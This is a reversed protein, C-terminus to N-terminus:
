KLSEIVELIQKEVAKRNNDWESEKIRILKIGKEKALKNKIEDKQKAEEKSHWYTGDFEIGLNLAPLFIDLERQHGKKGEEFLATRNNELIEGDYISKVFEAVDKEKLSYPKRVCEKCYINQPNTEKTEWTKGCIDCKLKIFQRDPNSYEDITSLVTIRKKKLKEVFISYHNFRKTRIGKERVTKTKLIGAIKEKFGEIGFINEVGYHSIFTEKAKQRCEPSKSPNDVGFRSIYTSRAKNRCEKVLFPTEAGYKKICTQITKTHNNYGKEGYLKIKTEAIKETREKSKNACELSCYVSGNIIQQFSLEKGCIPCSPIVIRSIKQKYIYNLFKLPIGKDDMWQKFEESVNKNYRQFSISKKDNTLFKEIEELFKQPILYIKTM